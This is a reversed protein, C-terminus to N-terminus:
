ANGYCERFVRESVVRAGPANLHHPDSFYKDPLEWLLLDIYRIGNARALRQFHTTARAFSKMNGVEIRLKTAVPFTVLCVDAGRVLLNRIITDYLTATPHTEFDSVPELIKATRRAAAIQIPEPTESYDIDSLRSGDPMFTQIPVFPRGQLFLLWYRFIEKRHSGSLIRPAYIEQGKLIAELAVRDNHRGSLFNNSFHHPGAQLLVRKPQRNQFFLDIRNAISDFNNGGYALNVFGNMNTLGYAAHSDGFVTNPLTTNKFLGAYKYDNHHPAVMTRVLLESAGLFAVIGFASVATFTGLFKKFSSISSNM